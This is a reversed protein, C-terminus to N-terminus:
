QRKFINGEKDKVEDDSISEFELDLGDKNSIKINDGDKEVKVKEYVGIEYIDKYSEYKEFDKEDMDLKVNEDEIILTKDAFELVFVNDSSVWRTNTFEETIDEKSCAVGLSIIILCLILLIKKDALKLM